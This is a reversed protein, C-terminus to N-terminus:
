VLLLRRHCPRMGRHPLLFSNRFFFIFVASIVYPYLIYLKESFFGRPPLVQHNTTSRQSKLICFRLQLEFHWNTLWTPYHYYSARLLPKIVRPLLLFFFFFFFCLAFLVPLTRCFLISLTICGGGLLSCCLWCSSYLLCLFASYLSFPPSTGLGACESPKGPHCCPEGNRCPGKLTNQM